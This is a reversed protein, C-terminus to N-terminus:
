RWNTFNQTPHAYPPPAPLPASIKIDGESHSRQIKTKLPQAERPSFLDFKIDPHYYHFQRPEEVSTKPAFFSISQDEHDKFAVCGMDILALIEQPTATPSYNGNYQSTNSPHNSRTELLLEHLFKSPDQSLLAVEVSPFHQEVLRFQYGLNMATQLWLRNLTWTLDKPLPNFYMCIPQAYEIMANVARATGLWVMKNEPYLQAHIVLKLIEDFLVQEYYFLLTDPITQTILERIKKLAIKKMQVSAHKNFYIDHLRQLILLGIEGSILCKEKAISDIFEKNDTLLLHALSNHQRSRLDQITRFYGLKKQVSLWVRNGFHRSFKLPINHRELHEYANMANYAYVLNSLTDSCKETLIQAQKESLLMVKKLAKIETQIANLETKIHPLRFDFFSMGRYNKVAEKIRLLAAEQTKILANFSPMFPTHKAIDMKFCDVTKKITKLSKTEQAWFGHQTDRM